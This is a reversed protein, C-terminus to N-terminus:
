RSGTSAKKDKLYINRKMVQKKGLQNRVARIQESGTEKKHYKEM